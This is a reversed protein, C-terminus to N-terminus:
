GALAEAFVDRDVNGGSAVVLITKGRLAPDARLAAALAVAGGPEVVIKLERFAAAMAAKAEADSVALAGFGLSQFAAFPLAGVQDVLLADCISRIGPPNRERVGSALSRVLDDHGHPEVAVLACAPFRDKLAIGMGAALGGGSACLFAIDPRAGLAQLDEAAELGATGQGAIVFPDDFPKVLALGRAAAIAGGIAERDENVRDYLIVEAGLAMTRERKAAPADAPMVIVAPIAFMKAAAATAIAHNGSSFALVGNAREAPAYAAIRNYAGRIKFAGFRQLCEAKVFLRAGIADNLADSELLPTRRAVGALRRAAARIDEITPASM